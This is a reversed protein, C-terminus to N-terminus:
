PLIDQYECSLKFIEIFHLHIFLQLYLIYFLNFWIVLYDIYSLYWITLYIFVYM